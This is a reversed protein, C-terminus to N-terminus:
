QRRATGTQDASRSTMRAQRLSRDAWAFSPALESGLAVGKEPFHQLEVM